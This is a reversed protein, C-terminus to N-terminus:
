LGDGATETLDVEVEIGEQVGVREDHDLGVHSQLPLPPGPLLLVRIVM